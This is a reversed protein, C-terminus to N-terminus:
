EEEISYRLADLLIPIDEKVIGHNILHPLDTNFRISFENFTEKKLHISDRYYNLAEKRSGLCLYTHGITTLDEHTKSTILLKQYYKEAQKFKGLVFSCWAIPRWVKINNPDSYEIKFYFKLADEWKELELACHAISAQTQLNNNDIQYAKLYYELAQDTKGISHYCYAIKKITWHNDPKIMDAQLYDQIALEILGLKQNCYASKQILEIDNPMINRLESLIEQSEIYYNKQFLFEGVQKLYDETNMLQKFFWKQHINVVHNFIDDFQRRQQHLKFFRYLDQIYQNSITKLSKDPNLSLEDKEIEAMQDLEANFMQTMMDRQFGPMHPIGLILSYKDSNCIYGSQGISKALTSNLFDADNESLDNKISPHSLSFPVLWNQLQNFFTFHKLMSFTSLFVDAGELQWKSIEELKSLLEPSDALLGQWDPNKDDTNGSVIDDLNLKDRLLPHIKVVEPLIENQLKNSIKETERSRIIQIITSEFLSKTKSNEITLKIRDIIDPYLMLRNDFYALVFVLATIAQMKVIPLEHSTLKILYTILSIDWHRLLHMLTGSIVLSKTSIPLENNNLIESLSDLYDPSPNNNLWIQFFLKSECDYYTNDLESKNATNLLKHHEWISLLETTTKDIDIAQNHSIERHKESAFDIGEKNLLEITIKDTLNYLDQLLRVIIAQRNPDNTTNPAYRLLSKYSFELHYHADILESNHLEKGLVAILNFADRIKKESLSNCITRYTLKIKKTEM